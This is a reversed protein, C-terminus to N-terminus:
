DFLGLGHLQSMKQTPPIGMEDKESIDMPDRRSGPETDRLFPGMGDDNNPDATADWGLMDEPEAEEDEAVDWQHDDDAPVFLSDFKISSAPPPQTTDQTQTAPTTGTTTTATGTLPRVPRGRPPAMPRTNTTASTSRGAPARVQAPVPPVSAQRASLERVARSSSPLDEPSAAGTTMLTYEARAGEFDYALQLPQCPRTFRATLSAGSSDAHSIIARFDKCNIAIHMADDALYHEFDKKDIAVSTHVPQRLTDKGDTIKTTFSTFLVKNNESYFDLQEASPSFHAAIEKLFVPEISWENMAQSQDFMAHVVATSEYKLKYSKIVGLGCIMRIFLRCETEDSDEHVEIECKEVATDKDRRNPRSTFVSLLAKLFVQCSFKTHAYDYKYNEFFIEPEFVFTAYASKSSNLASLRLLDEEIELGVNDSFKSFCVLADHFQTLSAPLLSFSITAM